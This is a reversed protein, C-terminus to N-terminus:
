LKHFLSFTIVYTPDSISVATVIFIVTKSVYGQITDYWRKPPLDVSSSPLLNKRVKTVVCYSDYWV